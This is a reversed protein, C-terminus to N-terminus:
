LSSLTSINNYALDRKRKLETSISLYLSPLSLTHQALTLSRSLFFIACVHRLATRQLQTTSAEGHLVYGMHVTHCPLPSLTLAARSVLSLLSSLLSLSLPLSPSLSHRHLERSFLLIINRIGLLTQEFYYYKECM